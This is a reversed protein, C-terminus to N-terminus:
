FDNVIEKIKLGNKKDYNLVIYNGNKFSGPPFDRITSGNLKMIAARIVRGHSGILITKDDNLEAIEELAPIYRDILEQDSEMDDVFRFHWSEEQSLELWRAKHSEVLHEPKGDLSGFSGERLAELLNDKPLPKGLIIEATEVARILDSSYAVDFRVDKLRERTADIQERGHDSLGPNVQGSLLGLKNFASQGHRVLYITTM